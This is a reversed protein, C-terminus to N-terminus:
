PKPMTKGTPHVALIRGPVKIVNDWSYGYKAFAKKGTFPRKKGNAIVYIKKTDTDRVLTGDKFGLPKGSTYSQFEADTKPTLTPSPYNNLLIDRSWIDHKVGNEDISAIAGTSTNQILFSSVAVLSEDIVAGQPMESVEENTVPIVEEEFFGLSYMVNKSAIPRKTGNVYMYIGGSPVQLLSYNPYAIPSGDKYKDAILTSTVVISNPNYNALLAGRSTFLRKKGGQILYINDGVQILTGNPYKTGPNWEQWLKQFLSNAGWRPDGGGYAGVWPNYTYMAATAANEPTVEIGDLTTKTINPGWGSITYGRSEISALYGNRITDGASELQSSIGAYQAADAYSCSDCVGFGLMYESIATSMTSRTIASSEKQALVLFLMPNLTYDDAVRKIIQAVSKDEGDIDTATTTALVSGKETLFNQIAKVGMWSNDTMEKDTILLNKTFTFARAESALLACGFVATLAFFHPIYKHISM